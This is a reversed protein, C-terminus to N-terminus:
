LHVKIPALKEEEGKGKNKNRLNNGLLDGTAKKDVLYPKAKVLEKLQEEIGTVEGSEPDVKVKTRDILKLVDAPDLFNMKAAMFLTKSEIKTKTLEAELGTVKLTAEGLNTKTLTLEDMSAKRRKDEEDKLRKLEKKSEKSDGRETELASRLGATTTRFFGQATEPMAAYDDKVKKPQKELWATFQPDKDEDEEEDEAKKRAAEAAAAAADADAKQKAAAADGAEDFWMNPLLPNYSFMGNM